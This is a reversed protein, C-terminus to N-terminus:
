FCFPHTSVKDSLSEAKLKQEKLAQQLALIEAKHEKVALEVVQRSETIRQDARARGPFCLGMESAGGDGIWLFSTPGDRIRILLWVPQLSSFPGVRIELKLNHRAKQSSVSCLDSGSLGQTFISKIPLTGTLVWKSLSLPFPLKGFAEPSFLIFCSRWLRGQSHFHFSTGRLSWLLGWRAFM